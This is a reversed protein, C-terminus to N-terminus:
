SKRKWFHIRYDYVSNRANLKIDGIQVTKSDLWSIQEFPVIGKAYYISKEPKYTISEGKRNPIHKIKGYYIKTYEYLVESDETPYKDAYKTWYHVGLFADGDPSDVDGYFFSEDIDYTPFIIYRNVFFWCVCLVTIAMILVLYTKKTHKRGDMENKM